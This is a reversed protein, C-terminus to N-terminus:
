KADFKLGRYLVPLKQLNIFDLTYHDSGTDAEVYTCGEVWSDKSGRYDFVNRSRDGLWGLCYATTTFPVPGMKTHSYTQYTHCHGFALDVYATEATAKAPLGRGGLPEHRLWLKSPGCKVYQTPGYPVFKWGPRDPFNLISPCDILGWLHPAVDRIYRFFRYCHNGEILTVPMGPFMEQIHDFQKNIYAIETPFPAAEGPHKPHTSIALFEAIDGNLYLHDIKLKKFIKLAVKYRSKDEFPFHVDNLIGARLIGM